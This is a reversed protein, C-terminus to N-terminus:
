MKDFQKTVKGCYFTIKQFAVFTLPVRGSIEWGNM